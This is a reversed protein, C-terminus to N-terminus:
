TYLGTLVDLVAATCLPCHFLAAAGAEAAAPSRHYFAAMVAVCPSCLCLHKCPLLVADRESEFCAVCLHKDDRETSAAASAAASAPPVPQPLQPPPPPLPASPPPVYPPLVVHSAAPPAPVAIPVPLAFFPPVLL